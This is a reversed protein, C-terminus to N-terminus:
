FLSPFFFDEGVSLKSMFKFGDKTSFEYSMDVDPMVELYKRKIVNVDGARMVDVFKGIYEKDTKGDISQIRAKLLDTGFTDYDKNYTKKIEIANEFIFEEEGSTLLRFKITKGSMPLTQSFLGDGDPLEDVEKYKLKTLDVVTEFSNGTRPDTVVVDYNNGYSSMRLFLLIANRDGSLLEYPRINKDKLKREIIVDMMKGKENLSPSTIIDEDESTLYGVTVESINNKYFLGKSPLDIIESSMILDPDTESTAQSYYDKKPNIPNSEVKTNNIVNNDGEKEETGRINDFNSLADQLNQEPM